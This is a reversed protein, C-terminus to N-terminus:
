EEGEEEDRGKCEANDERGMREGGREEGDEKKRKKVM